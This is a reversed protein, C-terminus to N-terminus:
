LPLDGPGGGFSGISVNFTNSWPSEGCDVAKVKITATGTFSGWAVTISNTGQGFEIAGRGSISWIYSEADIQPPVTYTELTNVRVSSNGTINGPKAPANASVLTNVTYTKSTGCPFNVTGKITQSGAVSFKATMARTSGGSVISGGTVTWSYSAGSVQPLTYTANTNICIGSLYDMPLNTNIVNYTKEFKASTGCDNRAQVSVKHQGSSNFALSASTGGSVQAGSNFWEYSNAGSVPNITFTYTKNPCLEASNSPWSQPTPIAPAAGLTVNKSTTVTNNCAGVSVSFATGSAPAKIQVSSSGQGSLIHAGNNAAWTYILEPNNGSISYTREQGHCIISSGSIANLQSPVVNVTVSSNVSNGYNDNMAMTINGGTSGFKVTLRSGHNAIIEAGAPVSWTFTGGDVRRVTYTEESCSLPNKNGQIDFQSEDYAVNVMNTLTYVQSGSGPLKFSASVSGSHIGFKVTVTSTGGGSVISAGNPVSWTIDYAKSHAKYTYTGFADVSQPGSMDSLAFNYEYNELINGEYDKKQVLRGLDDYEYTISKNDADTESTVGILPRYTYTSMSSKVPSFKLDDYYIEGGGNIGDHDIRAFISKATAPVIMTGELLEWENVKTSKINVFKYNDDFPVESDTPKHFFFLQARSGKSYVWVSFKFETDEELEVPQIPTIYYVVDGLTNNVKFAYDGNRVISSSISHYNPDWITLEPDDEFSTYYVQNYKANTAKAVPLTNNYGYIVSSYMGDPTHSQLLNNNDDYLDFHATPKMRYDLILGTNIDSTQHAPTYYIFPMKTELKYTADLTVKQDGIPNEIGYRNVIAGVVNNDVKSIVEVPYNLMNGNGAMYSIARKEPHMPQNPYGVNIDAPYRYHTSLTKGNSTGTSKSRLLGNEYEYNETTTIWNGGRNESVTKKTQYIYDSKHNYVSGYFIDHTNRELRCGGVWITYDYYSMINGTISKGVENSHYGTTDFNYQCEVKKVEVDGKYYRIRRILGRQIENSSTKSFSRKETEETLDIDFGWDLKLRPTADAGSIECFKVPKYTEEIDTLRPSVYTIAKSDRNIVYVYVIRSNSGTRNVQVAEFIIPANKTYNGSLMKYNSVVSYLNKWPEFDYVKLGNKKFSNTVTSYNFSRTNRTALKNGINKYNDTYHLTNDDSYLNISKVRCTSESDYVFEIKGGMDLKVSKLMGSPSTISGISLSTNIAPIMKQGHEVEILKDISSNNTSQFGNLNVSSSTKRFLSEPFYYEFDVTNGINGTSGSITVKDLFLRKYNYDKAGEVIYTEYHNWHPLTHLFSTQEDILHAPIHGLSGSYNFNNNKYVLVESLNMRDSITESLSNSTITEYSLDITKKRNGQNDYISLSNLRVGKIVDPRITSTNFIVTTGDSVQIKSLYKRIVSEKTTSLNFDAVNTLSSNELAEETNTKIKHVVPAYKYYRIFDVEELFKLEYKISSKTIKEPHVFYDLGLHNYTYNVSSGDPYEITTLYWKYNRPLPKGTYPHPNHYELKPELNNKVRCKLVPKSADRYGTEVSAPEIVYDVVKMEAGFSFTSHYNKEVANTDYGFTYKIGKPDIIKFGTIRRRTTQLFSYEITYDEINVNEFAFNYNPVSHVTGDIDFVFYGSYGNFSFHFKDAESDYDGSSAQNILHSKENDANAEFNSINTSGFDLYGVDPREDELGIVEREIFGLGSISWDTGVWGSARNLLVGSSFYNLSLNLKAQGASYSFLPISYQPSLSQMNVYSESGIGESSGVSTFSFAAAAAEDAQNPDYHFDQSICTLSGLTGLFLTFLLKKM